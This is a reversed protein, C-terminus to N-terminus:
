DINEAICKEDYDIMDCEDHYNANFNEDIKKKAIEFAEHENDAEVEISSILKGSITVLYKKMLTDGKIKIEM